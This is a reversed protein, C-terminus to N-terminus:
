VSQWLDIEQSKTGGAAIPQEVGFLESALKTIASREATTFERRVPSAVGLLWRWPTRGLKIEIGDDLHLCVSRTTKDKIRYAFCERDIQDSLIRAYSRLVSYDPPQGECWLLDSLDWLDGTLWRQVANQANIPGEVVIQHLFDADTFRWDEKSLSGVEVTEVAAYLLMIKSAFDTRSLMLQEYVRARLDLWEEVRGPVDGAFLVGGDVGLRSMGRAIALPLTRDVCLGMHLAIRTLNDLNDLDVDRSICSGFRGEGTVACFIEEVAQSAPGAFHRSAWGEIDNEQGLVQFYPGGLDEELGFIQRLRREHEFSGTYRFAEEVLHGFPTIAADHLLAAAELILREHDPLVRAFRTQSALFAVGLSHEYRTIGAIGPMAASDINSLRVHRLRQVIPTWILDSIAKSFRVAGYLPDLVEIRGRTM